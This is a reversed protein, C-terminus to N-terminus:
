TCRRWPWTSYRPIAFGPGTGGCRPAAADRARLRAILHGAGQVARVFRKLRLMAEGPAPWRTRNISLYYSIFTITSACITATRGRPLHRGAFIYLPQYCYCDYYGYFLRREQEGHHSRADVPELVRSRLFRARRRTIVGTGNPSVLWHAYVREAARGQASGDAEAVGNLSAPWSSRKQGMYRPSARCRWSRLYLGSHGFGRRMGEFDAGIFRSVLSQCINLIASRPM